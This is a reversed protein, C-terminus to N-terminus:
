LLGWIFTFITVASTVFVIGWFLINEVVNPKNYKNEEKTFVLDTPKKFNYDALMKNLMTLNTLYDPKTVESQSRPTEINVVENLVKQLRKIRTEKLLLFYLGLLVLLIAVLILFSVIFGMLPGVKSLYANFNNMVQGGFLGNGEAFSMYVNMGNNIFHIIIAPFISKSMVVAIAMLFGIITAYFVQNVNLHMLGFIISSYVIARKLGLSSLGNMLFGRHAFEECVAPLLAVTLLNFFFMGVSMPASSGTGASPLKEYGFLSILGNFFSSVAINLAYAFLGIFIVIILTKWSIKSVRMDSMTQKFKKKRILTYAAFPIILFIGIQIICTFLLDYMEDSLFSFSFVSTIIRVTILLLMMIFYILNTYFFRSGKM